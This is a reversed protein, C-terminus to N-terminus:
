YPIFFANAISSTIPALKSTEIAKHAKLLNCTNPKEIVFMKLMINTRNKPQFFPM